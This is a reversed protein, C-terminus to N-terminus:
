FKGCSPWWPSIAVHMGSLYGFMFQFEISIYQYAFNFFQKLSKVIPIFSYVLKLMGRFPELNRGLSHMLMALFLLGLSFIDVPFCYSESDSSTLEPAQWGPTGINATMPLPSSSKTLIRSLGFDAVKPYKEGSVDGQVLINCPTLDRHCVELEHLYRVGSVINEMYQLCREFSVRSRQGKFFNNLDGHCCYELIFNMVSGSEIADYFTIINRHHPAKLLEMLDKERNIFRRTEENIQVEKFQWM